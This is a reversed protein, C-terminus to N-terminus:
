YIVRDYFKYIECGKIFENRGKKEKVSTQKSPLMCYVCRNVDVSTENRLFRKSGETHTEM